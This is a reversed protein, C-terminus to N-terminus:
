LTIKETIGKIIQDLIKVADEVSEFNFIHVLIRGITSKELSQTNELLISLIRDKLLPNKNLVKQMDRGVVRAAVLELSSEEEFLEVHNEYINESELEFYNKLITGIDQIDKTRIEPRDDFAILKLIVIGPLSSVKFTYKNDFNVEEVAEQYVEKFGSLDTHAFGEKDIIKKGEIEIAGFPLLDIQNGKKDFLVYENSISSTFGEKEILFKKLHQYKSKDSIFVAFDVDKTGLARVGKRVFWTDRAIAGILYFDIDIATLAREFSAFAEKLNEQRLQKFSIKYSDSM